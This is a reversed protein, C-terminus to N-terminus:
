VGNNIAIFFGIIDLIALYFGVLVFWFLKRMYCAITSLICSLLYGPYLLAMDPKHATFTLITACVMLVITSICELIFAYKHSRYSSIFFEWM